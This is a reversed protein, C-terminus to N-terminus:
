RTRADPTEMSGGDAPLQNELTDLHGELADQAVSGKPRRLLFSIRTWREILAVPLRFSVMKRPTGDEAM